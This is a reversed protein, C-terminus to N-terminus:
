GTATGNKPGTDSDHAAGANDEPADSTRTGPEEWMAAADEASESGAQAPKMPKPGGRAVVVMAPRLVREAIVYGPQYVQLVTGAPVTRDEQEMVAQHKHPNFMEDKPSVRMVGHRELVNLFERETM